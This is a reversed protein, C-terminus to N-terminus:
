NDEISRCLWRSAHRCPCSCKTHCQSESPDIENWRTMVMPKNIQHRKCCKCSVSTIFADRKTLIKGKYYFNCDNLSIDLNTCTNIYCMINYIYYVKDSINKKVMKQIVIAADEYLFEWIYVRLEYPLIGIYSKEIIQSNM